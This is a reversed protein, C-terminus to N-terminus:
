FVVDKDPTAAIMSRPAAAAAELREEEADKIEQEKKAIDAKKKDQSRKLRFFEERELEDLESKIYAVTNAIRPIVVTDLANVRRSTVKIAEDLIVFSTQLTALQVLVDVSKSFTTRAKAIQQGGKSLGTHDFSVADAKDVAKFVPVKVGAINDIRTEVRKQASGVNEIVIPKIDGAAYKVEALAFNGEKFAKGMEDKAELISRLLNRLRMTLADAKKKLLSHGKKAGVLKVKMVQLNQRTPFVNLRAGAGSM